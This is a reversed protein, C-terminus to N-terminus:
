SARIETSNATSICVSQVILPLFINKVRLCDRGGQESFSECLATGRGEGLTGNSGDGVACNWGIKKIFQYM